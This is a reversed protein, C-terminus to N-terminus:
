IGRGVGALIKLFQHLSRGQRLAFDLLRLGIQDMKRTGTRKKNEHTEYSNISDLSNRIKQNSNM